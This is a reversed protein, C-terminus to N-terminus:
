WLRGNSAAAALLGFAVSGAWLFTAYALRSV